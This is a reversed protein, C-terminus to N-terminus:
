MSSISGTFIKPPSTAEGPAADWPSRPPCETTFIAAPPPAHAQRVLVRSVKAASAVQHIYDPNFTYIGCSHGLGAYRHLKSILDIAEDITQYRWLALVPSIKEGSFREEGPTEGIVMLM